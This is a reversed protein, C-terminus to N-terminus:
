ESRYRDEWEHRATLERRGRDTLTYSNTRRDVQGKEVLGKTVVTDLNSYLRSHHIDKEYYDELEDKLTLGNLENESAIVYLLDRQFGTLDDMTHM